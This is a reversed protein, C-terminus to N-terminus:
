RWEVTVQHLKKTQRARYAALEKSYVYGLTPKMALYAEIDDKRLAGVVSGDKISLTNATKDLTYGNNLTLGHYLGDIFIMITDQTDLISYPIETGKTFLNIDGYFNKPLYVTRESWQSNQRVEVLLEEPRLHRRTKLENNHDLYPEDPYRTGGSWPWTDNIAITYNDLITYASKPLRIGDAYVTVRGPYLSFDYSNDRTYSDYDVYEPQRDKTTYVNQAGEVMNDNNLIKYNCARSAGNEARQIVYTLIGTLPEKALDPDIINGEGVPVQVFGDEDVTEIIDNGERHGLVINYGKLVDNEYLPEIIYNTNPYQRVGNLWVMVYDTVPNYEKGIFIKNVWPYGWAVERLDIYNYEDAKTRMYVGDYFYGTLYDAIIDPDKTSDQQYEETLQELTMSSSNFGREEKWLNFARILFLYFSHQKSSYQAVLDPNAPDIKNLYVANVKEAKIIPAYAESYGAEKLFKYGGDNMHLWCTVPVLPNEIYSALQYGFVILEDDNTHSIGDALAVATNTTTYSNSFEQIEKASTADLDRWVGSVDQRDSRDETDFVKWVTGKNFAKIEGHMATATAFGEEGEFLYSRNENLLYGNYYVLTEDIKGISVAPKIGHEMEETYLNGERDDLLVYHMGVRLGECTIVRKVPDYRVDERRVMLGNVFLVVYPLKYRTDNPINDYAITINDPVPIAPNGNIDVSYNQFPIQGNDEICIDVVRTGTQYGSEDYIPEEKQMDIVTWCMDRRVGVISFATGPTETERQLKRDYYQWQSRLLVEGNVFLLPHIFRKITSIHARQNDLSINVERIYGYEHAFVGLVSVDFNNKDSVDEAITVVRNEHDWSYYSDEYDFGNIFINTSGINSPLYFSCSNTKSSGQRLRGTASMWSFEFTIALVYDYKQSAQYSLYIGDSLKEYDGVDKGVKEVFLTDIDYGYQELEKNLEEKNKDSISAMLQKHEELAQSIDKSPMLFHGRIDGACFGYFETNLAPCGIKPNVRDVKFLRKKIGSIKGPNLHILSPTKVHATMPTNDDYVPQEDIMYSRKYQIVCNNQLVYNTDLRDDVFIRDVKMNPVLYQYSVEDLDFDILGDPIRDGWNWRKDVKLDAHNKVDVDGEFYRKQLELFAELEFDSIVTSGIRNLPSILQYDSFMSLNIQSDAKELAKVPQWTSGDFYMLVGNYLWLQGIVPASSPVDSTMEDFLQFKDSFIPLWGNRVRDHKYGLGVWMYLQNTRQDLWLSGRHKAVPTVEKKQPYDILHKVAEYVDHMEGNFLLDSQRGKYGNDNDYGCNCDYDYPKAM